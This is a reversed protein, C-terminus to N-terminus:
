PKIVHFSRFTMQMNYLGLCPPFFFFALFGFVNLLVLLTGSEAWRNKEPQFAGTVDPKSINCCVRLWHGVNLPPFSFSIYM